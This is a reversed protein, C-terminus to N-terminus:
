THSRSQTIASTAPTPRVRVLVRAQPQSLQSTRQVIGPSVM